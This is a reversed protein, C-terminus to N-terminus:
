TPRLVHGAEVSVHWERWTSGVQDREGILRCVHRLRYLRLIAAM